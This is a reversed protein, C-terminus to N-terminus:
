ALIPDQAVSAMWGARVFPFVYLRRFYIPKKSGTRYALNWAAPPWASPARFM